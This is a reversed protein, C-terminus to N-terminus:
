RQENDIGYDSNEDSEQINDSPSSTSGQKVHCAEEEEAM